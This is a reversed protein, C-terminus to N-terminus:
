FIITESRKPCMEQDGLSLMRHFRTEFWPSKALQTSIEPGNGNKIAETLSQIRESNFYVLCM